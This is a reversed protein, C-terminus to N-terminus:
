RVREGAVYVEEVQLDGNMVVLDARMGVELTGRDELGLYRAPLESLRRSAEGLGLGWAVLNRLAQDMTLASGALTGNELYMGDKKKYVTYRGLPYQGEPMGAGAVADSVGYLNPISRMAALIAAPHVHQGDGIFEAWEAKELAFGVVGPERHQLPSMANYFHTFGVAGAEFGAKAQAYDALTHGMQVRVGQASLYGIMELMGELEPALTIVKLAALSMWHKLKDLDPGIAFPPQAGLKNPNVFPGELHVGLVQAEGLSPHDMVAGIGRLAAEIDDAPATVTTALLGTTGHQAHFRAMQRTAAPGEMVDAGGGGHVHLDVFGPLIYRRPPHSLPKFQHISDTFDIRAPQLGAPTLLIGSLPM